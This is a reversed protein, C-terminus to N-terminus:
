WSVLLPLKFLKKFVFFTDFSFAASRRGMGERFNREKKQISEFDKALDQCIKCRTLGIL